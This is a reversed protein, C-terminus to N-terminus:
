NISAGHLIKGEKDCSNRSGRFKWEELNSSSSSTVSHLQVYTNLNEGM